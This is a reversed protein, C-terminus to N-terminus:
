LDIEEFTTKAALLCLGIWGFTYCILAMLRETPIQLREVASDKFALSSLDPLTAKIFAVLSGSSGLFLVLIDGSLSGLVFISLGIAASVAPSLRVSCALCLSSVIAAQLFSGLVGQFIWPDFSRTLLGLSGALCFGLLAGSLALVALVALLHALLFGTRSISRALIPYLRRTEVEEPLSTCGLLVGLGLLFYGILTLGFDTTVQQFTDMGLSFANIYAPLLFLLVALFLTSLHIQQRFSGLLYLRTAALIPKM